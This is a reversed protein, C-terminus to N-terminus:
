YPLTAPPKPKDDTWKASRVSQHEIVFGPRMEAYRGGPVTLQDFRSLLAGTREDFVIVTRSRYTGREAEPGDTVTVARDATALAVGRRGLPDTVHGIAHVGPQGALARMLGAQVGPPLPNTGLMSAVRAVKADPAAARGAPGPGKGPPVGAAKGIEPESLFMDTLRAPATPLKRLEKISRGELFRGGGDPDKGAEPGGSRWPTPEKTYVTVSPGDSSVPFSSPSGAKRWLAEDRPTQPRAPLDRVYYAEGMGQEAGRWSFSEGHAGTIAYSGTAARMVYSQGQVIDSYWYKGTPQAEAQEAAALVARKGLEVTAPTGPSAPSGPGIVAIAVAAAAGAALVGAGAMWRVPRRRGTSRVPERDAGLARALDRDRRARAAAPDAPPDLQEPRAASLSKMVDHKM